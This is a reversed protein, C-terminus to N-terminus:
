GVRRCVVAVQITVDPYVRVTLLRPPTMGFERIDFVRSGGLVMTHDDEVSLAMDDEVNCTVGFFSVDGRVRYCGSRGTPQWESLVANATPHRRTDLRRRLEADYIANGSALRTLPLELCGAEV